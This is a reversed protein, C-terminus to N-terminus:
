PHAPTPGIAFLAALEVGIVDAAALDDAGVSHLYRDAMVAVGHGQRKAAVALSVGRGTLLSGHLHRLGHLKFNCGHRMNLRLWEQSYWRPSHAVRGTLDAALNAIIPGDDALPVGAQTAQATLWARHQALHTLMSAPLPIVKVVGTKTAKVGRAGAVQYASASVILQGDRVDSWRLALVEGRRCGTSASLLVATRLSESATALMAELAPLTPMYEAQDRRVAKPPSAKDAVNAPLMDWKYGQQLVAHLVRAYHRVTNPSRTVQRVRPGDATAYPRPYPRALERYWRDIDRATLASLRHHGLDARIAAIISREREATTPSHERTAAYEDTLEAVTGRYNAQAAHEDDWQKRLQRAQREAAKLNPADFVETRERRRGDPRTGFSARYQWRGNARQRLNGAKM